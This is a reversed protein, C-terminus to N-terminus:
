EEEIPEDCEYPEFIDPRFGKLKEEV